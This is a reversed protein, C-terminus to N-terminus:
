PKLSCFRRVSFDRSAHSRQFDPRLGFSLQNSVGPSEVGRRGRTVGFMCCLERSSPSRWTDYSSRPTGYVKPVMLMFATSAFPSIAETVVVLPNDHFIGPRTPSLGIM